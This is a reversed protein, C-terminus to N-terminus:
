QTPIRAAPLKRLPLERHLQPHSGTDAQKGSGCGALMSISMLLGLGLLAIKKQKM